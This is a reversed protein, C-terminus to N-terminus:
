MQSPNSGVRSGLVLVWQSEVPQYVSILLQHEISAAAAFLPEEHAQLVFYVPM